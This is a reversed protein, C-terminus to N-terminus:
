DTIPIGYLPFYKGWIQGIGTFFGLNNIDEIEFSEWGYSDDFRPVLPKTLSSEIDIFHGTHFNWISPTEKGEGNWRVGLVLGGATIKKGPLGSVEAILNLQEDSVITRRNEFNNEKTCQQDCTLFMIEKSESIDRVSGMFQFPPFM